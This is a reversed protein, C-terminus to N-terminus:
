SFFPFYKNHLSDAKPRFCGWGYSGILGLVALDVFGFVVEDRLLTLRLVVWFRGMLWLGCGMGGWM